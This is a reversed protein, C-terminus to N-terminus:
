NPPLPTFARLLSQPSGSCTSSHRLGWTFVADRALAERDGRLQLPTWMNCDDTSSGPRQASGSQSLFQLSVKRIPNGKEAHTPCIFKVNLSYKRLEEETGPMTSFESFGSTFMLCLGQGGLASMRTPFVSCSSM